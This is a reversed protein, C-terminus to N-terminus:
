LAKGDTLDKGSVIVEDYLQLWGSSETDECIAYEGDSVLVNIKRFVMEPGIVVYVGAQETGDEETVTRIASVPIRLGRVSEIIIEAQETRCKGLESIFNRSSVMVATDGDTGGDKQTTEIATQVKEDSVAPFRIYLKSGSIQIEKSTPMNFVFYWTYDTVLKPQATLEANECQTILANIKDCSLETLQSPSLGELGDSYYFFYGSDPAYQSSYSGMTNKLSSIEQKLATIRSSYDSEEFYSGYRNLLKVLSRRQEYIGRADGCQTIEDIRDLVEQTQSLMTDPTLVAENEDNASIAELDQLEDSLLAIKAAAEVSKASSYIRAIEEKKAAREGDSLSYVVSGSGGGIQLRIESRVFVGTVTVSQEADYLNATYTTYKKDGARVILLMTVFVAAVGIAAAAVVTHKKM